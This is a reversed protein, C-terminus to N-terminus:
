TPVKGDGGDGESGEGGIPPFGIPPVIGVGDGEPVKVPSNVDAKIKNPLKEGRVVAEM